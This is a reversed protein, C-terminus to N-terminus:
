LLQFASRFSVQLRISTGPDVWRAEYRNYAQSAFFPVFFIDAESQNFVQVAARTEKYNPAEKGAISIVL